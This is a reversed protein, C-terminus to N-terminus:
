EGAWRERLGGVIGVRVGARRGLFRESQALLGEVGANKEVVFLREHNHFPLHLIDPIIGAFTIEITEAADYGDADAMAMRVDNFGRAALVLGQLVRRRDIEM